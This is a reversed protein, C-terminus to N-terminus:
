SDHHDARRIHRSIFSDNLKIQNKSTLKYETTTMRKKKSMLYWSNNVVCVCEDTCRAHKIYRIDQKTM